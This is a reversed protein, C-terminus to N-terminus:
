LIQWTLLLNNLYEVEILYQLFLNIDMNGDGKAIFANVGWVWWIKM